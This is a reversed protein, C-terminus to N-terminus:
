WCSLAMPKLYTNPVEWIYYTAGAQPAFSLGTEGEAFPYVETCAESNFAGGYLYGSTVKDTLNFGASVPYTETDGVQKAQGNEDM